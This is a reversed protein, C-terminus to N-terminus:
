RAAVTASRPALVFTFFTTPPSGCLGHRRALLYSRHTTDPCFALQVNGIMVLFPAHGHVVLVFPKLEQHQFPRLRSQAPVGNQSFARPIAFHKVSEIRLCHRAVVFLFDAFQEAVGSDSARLLSRWFRPKRKTPEVM